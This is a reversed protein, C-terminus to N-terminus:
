SLISGGATVLMAVTVLAALMVFTFPMRSRPRRVVAVIVGGLLAVVLVMGVLLPPSAGAGLIVSTSAGLVLLLTVLTSVLRGLRQPLGRVGARADEELDPLVNAFHAAGGLLASALVAWGAPFPSGPLASAPIVPLAAFGVLYTALSLPTAKLGLNYVWGAGLLALDALLMGPGGATALLLSVTGTVVAAVLVARPGIGGLAVPKDGREAATDREHDIGDNSLGISLQNTLVVGVVLLVGLLDLGLAAALLGAVATVVVTPGPHTAGLLSVLRSMRGAYAGRVSRASASRSGAGASDGRRAERM